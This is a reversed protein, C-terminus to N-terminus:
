AGIFEFKTGDIFDFRLGGIFLFSYDVVNGVNLFYGHPFTFM